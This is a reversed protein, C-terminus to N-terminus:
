APVAALVDVIRQVIAMPIPAQNLGIDEAWVLPQALDHVDAEVGVAALRRALAAAPAPDAPPGAAGFGILCVRVATWADLRTLDIAEISARLAPPMAYGLLEETAGAPAATRATPEVGAFGAHLRRLEALHATGDVVPEWLLLCDIDDRGAAALAALTAGLRLGAIHVRGAGTRRKLEAIATGADTVWRYVDAEADDGASDGTAYWDFRLAAIGREALLAALRRFTRHAKVYENAVPQCLVVAGSVAVDTPAHLVGYLRGNTPSGFLFHKTM